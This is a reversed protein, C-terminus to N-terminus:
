PLLHNLQSKCHFMAQLELMQLSRKRAELTHSHARLQIRDELDPHGNRSTTRTTIM